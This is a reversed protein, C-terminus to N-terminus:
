VLTATSNAGDYCYATLVVFCVDARLIAHSSTIVVPFVLDWSGILPSGFSPFIQSLISLRGECHGVKPIWLLSYRKPRLIFLVHTEFCCLYTETTRYIHWNREIGYQMLGKQPEQSGLVGHGGGQRGKAETFVSILWVQWNYLFISESSIFTYSLESTHRKVRGEKMHSCFCGRM